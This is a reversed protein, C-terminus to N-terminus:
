PWAHIDLVGGGGGRCVFAEKKDDRGHCRMADPVINHKPCHGGVRCVDKNYKRERSLTHRRTCDHVGPM